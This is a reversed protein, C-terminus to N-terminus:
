PASVERDKVTSETPTFKKLFNAVEIWKWIDRAIHLSGQRHLKLRERCTEVDFYGSQTFAVSALAEDAKRQFLPSRMWDNAPNEFGIKDQRTRIREPLCDRMAERLIWKTTGHRIQFEAPSALTKEVLRYDLFPERLEVSFYMSNLDNWKLNHELKSEFHQLLSEKLSKPDYLKQPIQTDRAHKQHFSSSVGQAARYSIASKVKSPVMYYGLYALAQFSRHHKYYTKAEHLLRLIQGTSLLERFFSGFFYPYGGLQEDAGQGDMLVNLHSSADKMVKFQSYISLGGFPEFHCRMLDDFDTLLTEETPLVYVLNELQSEYEQIFSREDGTRGDGYIASFAYYDSKHLGNILMSAISSSDLGGSLCIGVPVDSRLRLAIASKLTDYYEEPGSWGEVLHDQLQYWCKVKAENRVVTVCQGHKLKKIQKVFTNEDVDTRSHMLYDYLVQDDPQLSKGLRRVHEFIPPIESAFVFTDHTLYYYFPKVGFRDRAAFLTKTRRDYIAFAFMGNFRRLCDDGWHCYAKLLVETDSRTQFEYTYSLEKKIELYNYIEGNFILVYRGDDSIMPQHGASTLDLISLRVFGLGINDEIFTGVDDPGRHRQRQMMAEVEPRHVPEGSLNFIGSIGCM